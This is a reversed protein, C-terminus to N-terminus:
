HLWQPNDQLFQKGILTRVPVGPARLGELPYIQWFENQAKKDAPSQEHRGSVLSHMEIAVDRIEEPSNEQLCIQSEEYQQSKFFNHAGREVLESQTLVKGSLADKHLKTIHISKQEEIRLRGFPVANVYCRPRRAVGAFDEVGSGTSLFFACGFGLYVDLLDCKYESTVYDIVKKNSSTLENHVERGM